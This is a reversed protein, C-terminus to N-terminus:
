PRARSSVRWRSRITPIAAFGFQGALGLLGPWTAYAALQDAVPRGFGFRGLAFEAAFLLFLAVVGMGIDAGHRATVQSRRLIRGCVVWAAALMIPLELAVAALAGIRPELGLVRVAGLGFGIAFVALFYIAGSRIPGM